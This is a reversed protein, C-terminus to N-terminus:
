ENISQDQRGLGIKSVGRKGCVRRVSLSDTLGQLNQLNQFTPLKQDETTIKSLKMSPPLPDDELDEQKSGKNLLLPLESM